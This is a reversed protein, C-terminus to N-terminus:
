HPRRTDGIGGSNDAGKRINNDETSGHNMSNRAAPGVAPNVHFTGLEKARDIAAARLARVTRRREAQAPDEAELHHPFPSHHPHPSSTSERKKLARLTEATTTSNTADAQLLASASKNPHREADLRHYEAVKHHVQELWYATKLKQEVFLFM